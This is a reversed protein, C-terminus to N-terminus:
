MKWTGMTAVARILLPWGPFFAHTQEHEYGVDAIRLFYVADWTVLGQVAACTKTFPANNETSVAFGDDPFLRGSTDYDDLLTDFGLMLCLM